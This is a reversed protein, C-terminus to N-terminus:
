IWKSFDIEMVDQGKINSEIEDLLQITSLYEDNNIIKQKVTIIEDSLNKLIDNMRKKHISFLKNDYCDHLDLYKNVINKYNSISEISTKLGSLLPIPGLDIPSILKFDPLGQMFDENLKVPQYIEWNLKEGKYYKNITENGIFYYGDIIRMNNQFPILCFFSVIDKVPYIIEIIKNILLELISIDDVRFMISFYESGKKKLIVNSFIYNDTKIKFEDKIKNIKLIMEHDRREKIYILPHNIAEAPNIRFKLEILDYLQKYILNEKKAIDDLYSDNQTYKDIEKAITHLDKLGDISNQLNILSLNLEKTQSMDYIYNDIQSIFNKIGFSWDNVVNEIREKNSNTKELPIEPFKTISDKIRQPLEGNEFNNESNHKLKKLLKLLISIFEEFFKIIDLRLTELYKYYDYFSDLCYNDNIINIFSKNREVDLIPYFYKESIHKITEDNSPRMNTPLYYLGETIVENLFPLANQMIKVKSITQEHIGKEGGLSPIFNLYVRDEKIDLKILDASYKLYKRVFNANEGYWKLYQDKDIRYFCQVILIFDDICFKPFDRLINIIVSIHETKDPQDEGCFYIWDLLKAVNKFDKSITIKKLDYDIQNLLESCFEKGRAVNKIKNKIEKLKIYKIGQEPGFIEILKNLSGTNKTAVLLESGLLWTGNQGMLSNAEDFVSKNMLFFNKEGGDYFGEAIPVIIELNFQDSKNILGQILIEKDTSSDSLLDSIFGKIFEKPIAGIIDLAIFSPNKYDYFLIKYLHKNRVWHLGYILNDEIKIYEGKLSELTQQHDHKSNLTDILLNIDLPANLVSALTVKRLIDIKVSDENLKHIQNIQDKLRDSLMAGQTLLYIYEILLKKDGIREFATEPSTVFQNIKQNNKFLKFIEKAEELDLIPEIIKYELNELGYRFWDEKRISALFHVAFGSCAKVLECWYKVNLNVNDILVLIPLGINARHRLFELVSSVYELSNLYNLKYTNEKIWYDHAYRYLLTSKGEGSPGRIICLKNKMVSDHIKNLWKIRKYDADASIHSPQTNKGEYYDDVYNDTAWNIKSILGKGVVEFQKEISLKEKVDILVISINEKKIEKRQIAWDLFQSILIALYVDTADTNIDMNETIKLKLCNMLDDEKLYTLTLNNLFSKTDEKSINFDKCLKLFKNEIDKKDADVLSRYQSLIELDGTYYNNLILEFKSTPTIKYVDLFNKITNKIQYWKWPKDSTKVQIFTNDDFHFGKLDLDEIGELNLTGIKKNYLDFARLISYRIQYSIGRFNFYGGLRSEFISDLSGFNNQSLTINRNTIM